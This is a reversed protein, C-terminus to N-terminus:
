TSVQNGVITLDTLRPFDKLAAELERKTAIQNYGLHLVAVNRPAGGPGSNKGVTALSPPLAALGIGELMISRLPVAAFADRM